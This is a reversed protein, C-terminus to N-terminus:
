GHKEGQLAAVFARMQERRGVRTKEAWLRVPGDAATDCRACEAWVEPWMARCLEDLEADTPPTSATLMARFAIAPLERVKMLKAGVAEAGAIQMERSPEKRVLAFTM